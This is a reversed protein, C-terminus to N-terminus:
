VFNEPWSRIMQINVLPLAAGDKIQFVALVCSTACSHM